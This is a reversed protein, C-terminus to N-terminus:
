GDYKANSSIKMKKEEDDACSVNHDCEKFEVGIVM